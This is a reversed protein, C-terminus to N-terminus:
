LLTAINNNKNNNDNDNTGFEFKYPTLINKDVKPRRRHDEQEVFVVFVVANM